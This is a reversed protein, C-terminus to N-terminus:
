VLIRHQGASGLLRSTCVVSEKEISLFLWVLGAPKDIEFIKDAQRCV